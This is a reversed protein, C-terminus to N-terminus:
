SQAGAAIEKCLRYFKSTFPDLVPLAEDPVEAAAKKIIAMSEPLMLGVQESSNANGDDIADASLIEIGAIYDLEKDGFEELSALPGTINVIGGDFHHVNGRRDM